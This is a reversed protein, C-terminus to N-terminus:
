NKCKLKEQVRRIKERRIYEQEREEKEREFDAKDLADIKKQKETKFSDFFSNINKVAKSNAFSEDAKEVDTKIRKLDGNPLTEYKPRTAKEFTEEWQACATTALCIVILSMTKKM